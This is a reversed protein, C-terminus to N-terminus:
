FFQRVTNFGEISFDLRSKIISWIYEPASFGNEAGTIKGKYISFVLLFSYKYM